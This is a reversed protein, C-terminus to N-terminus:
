DYRPLEENPRVADFLMWYLPREMPQLPTLLSYGAREDRNEVMGALIGFNLNWLFMPGMGPTQQGIQFARMTYNAQQWKNIFDVGMWPEPPAGPFQDWTAWGFETAWLERQGHGNANLIQRYDRMTEAFFFHPHDDWGRTGCCLAEPPNAWGYPHFGVAVDSYQGLGNAYMERLYERDDRSGGSNGTPALGATVVIISPSAARIAQYSPAFLQMYGGGGFPLSGQWERLLNPENWVEIADIFPFKQILFTMFNALQQPDNPPGDENATSRAWAPAKAVSVLINLGERDAFQLYQELRKFPEEFENPGSPQLDEWAVQIKVWKFALQEQIRRGVADQWDPEDLNSDLQIGMRAPDIFPITTPRPGGPTQSPEPTASPQGTETPRPRRTETPELTYDPGIVPGIFSGPTATVSPQSRTTEITPVPTVTLSPAGIVAGTTPSVPGGIQAQPTPTVFITVPTQANCGMLVSVLLLCLYLPLKRHNLIKMGRISGYAMLNSCSFEKFTPSCKRRKHYLEFM